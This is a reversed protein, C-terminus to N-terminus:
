SSLPLCIEELDEVYLISRPSSQSGCISCDSPLGSKSNEVGDVDAVIDGSAAHESNTNAGNSRARQVDVQESNTQIM